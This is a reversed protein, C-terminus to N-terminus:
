GRLTPAVADVRVRPRVAGIARTLTALVVCDRRARRGLMACAALGREIREQHRRWAVQEILGHAAHRPEM